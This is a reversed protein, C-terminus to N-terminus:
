FKNQWSPQSMSLVGQGFCKLTTVRWEAGAWAGERSAGTVPVCGAAM